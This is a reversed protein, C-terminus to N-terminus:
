SARGIQKRGHLPGLLGQDLLRPAVLHPPRHRVAVEALDQMDPLTLRERELVVLTLVLAEQHYSSAHVGLYAELVAIQLRVAHTLAVRDMQDRARAVAQRGDLVGVDVLNRGRLDVVHDTQFVTVAPCSALSGCRMFVGGPWRSVGTRTIGTAWPSCSRRKRTKAPITSTAIASPKLDSSSVDFWTHTSPRPKITIAAGAM